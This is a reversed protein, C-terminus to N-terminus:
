IFGMDLGSLSSKSLQCVPLMMSCQYRFTPFAGLPCMICAVLRAASRPMAGSSLLVLRLEAQMPLERPLMGTRSLSAQGTLLEKPPTAALLQVMSLRVIPLGSRPTGLLLQEVSRALVALLECRPTVLLLPEVLSALVVPLVSPPM